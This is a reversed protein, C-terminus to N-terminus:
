HVPMPWQQAPKLISNNELWHLGLLSSYFIFYLNLPQGEITASICIKILGCILSRSSRGLMKTDPHDMKNRKLNQHGFELDSM